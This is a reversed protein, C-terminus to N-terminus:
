TSDPLGVARRGADGGAPRRATGRKPDAPEDTGSFQKRRDIAAPDTPGDHTGRRRRPPAVPVSADTEKVRKEGPISPPKVGSLTAKGPTARAPKIHSANRKPRAMKRNRPNDMASGLIDHGGAAASRANTSM